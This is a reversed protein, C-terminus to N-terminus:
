ENNKGQKKKAQELKYSHNEKYIYSLIEAIAGYAELPITSNIDLLSLVEVLDKDQHIEIGNQRATEIIQQAIFGKGTALVQPAADKEPEYGLAVAKLDKSELEKRENDAM